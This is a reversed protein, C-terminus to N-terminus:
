LPPLRSRNGTTLGIVLSVVFAVLFLFFLVQAIGVAGAAINGFGFVAAIMAIILFTLAWSLM